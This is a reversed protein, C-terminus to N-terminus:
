SMLSFDRVDCEVELCFKLLGGGRGVTLVAVGQGVAIFDEDGVLTEAAKLQLELWGQIAELEVHNVLGHEVEDHFTIDVDARGACINHM